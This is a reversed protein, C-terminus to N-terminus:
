ASLIYSMESAVEFMGQIYQSMREHERTIGYYSFMQLGNWLM